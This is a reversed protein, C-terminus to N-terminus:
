ILCLFPYTHAAICSETVTSVPNPAALFKFLPLFPSVFFSPYLSSRRDLCQGLMLYDCATRVHTM